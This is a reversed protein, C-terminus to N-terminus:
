KPLHWKQSSIEKDRDQEQHRRGYTRNVHRGSVVSLTSTDM